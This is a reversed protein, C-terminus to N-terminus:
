PQNNTPFATFKIQLRSKTDFDCYFLEEESSHTRDRPRQKPNKHKSFSYESKNTATKRKTQVRLTIRRQTFNASTAHFRDVIRFTQWCPAKRKDPRPLGSGNFHLATNTVIILSTEACHFFWFEILQQFLIKSYCFRSPNRGDFVWEVM